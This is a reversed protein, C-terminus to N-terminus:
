ESNLKTTLKACNPFCQTPSCPSPYGKEMQNSPRPLMSGPSFVSKCGQGHFITSVCQHKSFHYVTKVSYRYIAYAIKSSFIKKQTCNVLFICPIFALCVRTYRCVCVAYLFFGNSQFVSLFVIIRCDETYRM